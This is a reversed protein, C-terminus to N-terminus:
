PLENMNKMNQVLKQCCFPVFPASVRRLLRLIQTNLITATNTYRLALRLLLISFIVLQQVPVICCYEGSEVIAKAGSRLAALNQLAAAVAARKRRAHSNDASLLATGEAVRIGAWDAVTLTAQRVATHAISLKHNALTLAPAANAFLQIAGSASPAFRRHRAPQRLVANGRRRMGNQHLLTNTLLQVM